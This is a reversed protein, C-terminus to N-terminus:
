SSILDSDGVFPAAWSKVKWELSKVSGLDGVFPTAGSKVKLELSKVSLLIDRQGADDVRGVVPNIGELM